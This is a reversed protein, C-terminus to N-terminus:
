SKNIGYQKHTKTFNDQKLNTEALVVGSFVYLGFTDRALNLERVLNMQRCVHRNTYDMHPFRVKHDKHSFPNGEWPPHLFFPQYRM